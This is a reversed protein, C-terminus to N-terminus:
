SESSSGATALLIDRLVRADVLNHGLAQRWVERQETTFDAPQAGAALARKIVAIGGAATGEAYPGPVPFGLERAVDRLHAEGKKLSAGHVARYWHRYTDIADHYVLNARAALKPSCYSEILGIDHRSWSVFRRDEDECLAVLQGVAADVSAFIPLLPGGAQPVKVGPAGVLESGVVWVNLSMPARGDFPDEDYVASLLEPPKAFSMYGLSEFDFCVALHAEEETLPPRKM